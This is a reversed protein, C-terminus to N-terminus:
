YLKVCVCVCVSSIDYSLRSSSERETESAAELQKVSLCNIELSTFGSSEGSFIEIVSSAGIVINFESIIFSSYIEGARSEAEKGRRRREESGESDPTGPRTCACTLLHTHTKAIRHM